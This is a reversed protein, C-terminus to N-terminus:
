EGEKTITALLDGHVFVDYVLGDAPLADLIDKLSCAPSPIHLAGDKVEPRSTQSDFGRDELYKTLRTEIRRCRDHIDSIKRAIASDNNM